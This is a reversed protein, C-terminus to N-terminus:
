SSTRFEFPRSVPQLRDTVDGTLSFIDREVALQMEPRGEGFDIGSYDIWVVNPAFTSEFFYRQGTVDIVSRFITNAVNPRGPESAGFPVSVNRMVSM